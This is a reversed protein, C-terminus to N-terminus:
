PPANPDTPVIKSEATPIGREGEHSDDDLVVASRILLVLYTSWSVVNVITTGQDTLYRIVFGVLWAATLAIAATHAIVVVPRIRTKWSAAATLAAVLLYITGWTQATLVVLLNHYAPTNAWREPQLWLALGFTAYAVTVTFLSVPLRVRRRAPGTESAPHQVM